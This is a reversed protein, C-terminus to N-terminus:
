SVCVRDDAYQIIGGRKKKDYKSASRKWAALSLDPFNLSLKLTVRKRTLGLSWVSCASNELDLRTQWTTM